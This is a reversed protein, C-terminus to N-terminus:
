TGNKCLSLGSRGEGTGFTKCAVGYGASTSTDYIVDSVKIVAAFSWQTCSNLHFNGAGNNKIHRTNNFQFAPQDYFVPIKSDGSLCSRSIPNTDLVVGQVNGSVLFFIFLILAGSINDDAENAATHSIFLFRFIIGHPSTIGRIDDYIM